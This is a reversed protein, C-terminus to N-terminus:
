ELHEKIWDICFNEVENRNIENLSEHRGDEFLRMSVDQLGAKQYMAYVKQVGKGMDGVPDKSGSVLLVPLDKPINDIEKKDNIFLIGTLLDEFLKSTCVFGCLPDAVYADVQADDRSLWDFETRNPQFSKNYSGFSMKDLQKNPVKGGDRKVARKAILRGIVGLLGPSAATGSLIVGDYQDGRTIMLTRSLFSGMSHGFLFLRKGPNEMKIIETFEYLDDVVRFWGDEPAFYGLDETNEATHGHGRLDCAYVAFGKSRMKAAFHDYRMAHEAMGHVIQIVGIVEGRPIWTYYAISKGDSATFTAKRAM